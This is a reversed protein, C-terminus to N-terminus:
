APALFAALAQRLTQRVSAAGVQPTRPSPHAGPPPPAKGTGAQTGNQVGGQQSARKADRSAPQGRQVAQGQQAQQEAAQQGQQGGEHALGAAAQSREARQSDAPPPPQLAAPGPPPRAAPAGQKPLVPVGQLPCRGHEHCCTDVSGCLPCHPMRCCLRAGFMFNQVGHSPKVCAGAPAMHQMLVPATQPGCHRWTCCRACAHALATFPACGQVGAQCAGGATGCRGPQPQAGHAPQGCREHTATDHGSARCCLGRSCEPQPQLLTCSRQLELTAQNMLHRARAPAAGDHWCPWVAGSVPCGQCCGPRWQRCNVRSGTDPPDPNHAAPPCRTVRLGVQRRSGPNASSDGGRLSSSRGAWPSAGPRMWTTSAVRTRCARPCPSAARTSQEAGGGRAHPRAAGNRRRACVCAGAPHTSRATLCWAHQLLRVQRDPLQPKDSGACRVRSAATPPGARTAAQAARVLALLATFLVINRIKM